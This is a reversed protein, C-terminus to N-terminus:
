CLAPTVRRFAAPSMTCPCSTSWPWRGSPGSLSRLPWTPLRGCTARQRVPRLLGRLRPRVRRRLRLRRACRCGTSVVPWWCGRVLVALLVLWRIGPLGQWAIVATTFLPASAMGVTGGVGFISMAGASYRGVVARLSVSALPHFLAAGLGALVAAAFLVVYNTAFGYVAMFTGCWLVALPLMWPRGSRDVVAGLIPQLLGSSVNVATALAAALAVSLNLDRLLVPLVPPLM